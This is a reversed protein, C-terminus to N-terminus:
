YFTIVPTGDEILDYIVPMADSPCNICGHSGNTKYIEEGFKKRWSADHIGVGRYVKMWYRVFSNYGPGSLTINRAKNHIYNIGEPTERKKSVDGTVIDTEFAIKGDVYCYLHQKTMDVEVYTDGIDNAGRTYGEQLYVPIRKEEARITGSLVDMVYAKEREIDIKTGYTVYPVEVVDGRTTQFQCVTDVTNYRGLVNEVWLCVTEEDIIFKDDEDLIPLGDQGKVLFDHLRVGPSIQEAGMDFCFDYENSYKEIKEWVNQLKQDSANEELEEYCGGVELNIYLRGMSLSNEIYSYAKELNLRKLNGNQFVYGNEQNYTLSNHKPQTLELQVFDLNDFCSRLQEEDWQYSSPKMKIDVANTIQKVWKVGTEKHLYKQLVSSYDAKVSLVEGPIVVETVEGDVLYSIVIQSETTQEALQSNIEELTKGTCYVGNIWTNVPFSDRYYFDLIVCMIGAFVLCGVILGVFIRLRKKM